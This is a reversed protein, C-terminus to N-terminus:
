NTFDCSLLAHHLTESAKGCIKYTGPTNISKLSLNELTPLGSVCTRWTIIKIKASLKLHWLSRWLLTRLDRSSSEGEEMSDILNHAIHYASKMTFERKKNGLWINNNKPMNYSLPIKLITEVKFPLFTARLTEMKWWKTNPDILTSLMPYEVTNGGPPPPPPIVKYTSPTPLWKDDWIHILKGNGVRWRTGEQIVRLSDHISRWSYSPSAGLKVNVVDGSPFYRAKLVRAVLSNPNSLIRWWSIWANKTWQEKHGCWFNRM